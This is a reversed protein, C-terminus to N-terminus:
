AALGALFPKGLQRAAITARRIEKASSISIPRDLHTPIEAGYMQPAWFDVADLLPEIERSSMWTPLGTISLKTNTPLMPRLETVTKQYLPLLRTPFDLDLQIGKVNASGARDAAYSEAIARALAEPEISELGRLLDRTGNYVLHLEVGEPLSGKAPRIRKVEGNVLDMQGARLFITQAGSKSAEESSPVARKWAWFAIPVEDANWVRHMAATTAYIAVAVPVVAVLAALKLTRLGIYM